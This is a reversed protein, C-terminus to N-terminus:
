CVTATLHLESRYLGAVRLVTSVNDASFIVAPLASPAPPVRCALVHHITYSHIVIIMSSAPQPM